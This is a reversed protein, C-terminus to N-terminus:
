SNKIENTVDGQATQVRAQSTHPSSQFLEILEIAGRSGIGVTEVAKGIGTLHWHGHSSNHQHFKALESIGLKENLRM